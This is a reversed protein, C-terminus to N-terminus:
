SSKDVFFQQIKGDPTRYMLTRLTGRAFTLRGNSVEMGGRESRSTIEVKDPEGFPTLRSSAGKIRADTLYVSFEEGLRARDVRGAQLQHFMDLAADRAEPGAIRPAAPRPTAAATTSSAPGMLVTLLRSGLTGAGATEYNSLVIVASKTSPILTNQASFGSVAGGHSLVVAGNREAISLGCGYGSSSGDALKRATTMLTFSAPKLVRGGALALDWAALDTGTSYIAGAPGAWGKAEPIASDLGCSRLRSQPLIRPDPEM